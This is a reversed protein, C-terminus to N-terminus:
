GSSPAANPGFLRQARRCRAVGRAVLLRRPSGPGTDAQLGEEYRPSTGAVSPTPGLRRHGGSSRAVPKRGAGIDPSDLRLPPFSAPHALADGPPRSLHAADRGMAPGRSTEGRDM